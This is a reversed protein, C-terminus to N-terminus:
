SEHFPHCKKLRGDGHVRMNLTNGAGNTTLGQKLPVNIPIAEINTTKM